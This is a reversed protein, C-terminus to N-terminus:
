TIRREDSEMAEPGLAILAQHILGWVNFRLRPFDLIRRRHLGVSQGGRESGFQVVYNGTTEDDSTLDNTIDMRGIVEGRRKNGAPLYEVTVRIM